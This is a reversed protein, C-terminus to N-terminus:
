FKIEKTCNYNFKLNILITVIVIIFFIHLTSLRTKTLKDLFSKEIHYSKRTENM